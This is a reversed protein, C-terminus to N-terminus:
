HSHFSMIEYIIINDFISIYKKLNKTNTLNMFSSNKKLFWTPDM